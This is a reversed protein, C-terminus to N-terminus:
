SQRRALFRATNVVVWFLCALSLLIMLIPQWYPVFSVGDKGKEGREAAAFDGYRYNDWGGFFSLPSIQDYWLGVPSLPDSGTMWAQQDSFVMWFWGFGILPLWLLLVASVHEWYRQLSLADFETVWLKPFLHVDRGVHGLWVGILYLILLQIFTGFSLILLPITAPDPILKGVFNDTLGNQYALFGYIQASVLFTWLGSILANM